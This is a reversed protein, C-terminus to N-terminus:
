RKRKGTIALQFATGVLSLILWATPVWRYAPSASMPYLIWVDGSSAAATIRHDGALTLGGLLATWAGGFATAVIVVYRQLLMSGVAGLVAFGVIATLPPESTGRLYSWGVHAVLVGFGAGVLAVGVFYALVLIIAGATGGVIAALVMGSTSTVGMMSSMMAAGLIFGYVGVVFKFLRYGAFCALVGSALLVVGAPIEVANPLM